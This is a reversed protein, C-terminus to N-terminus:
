AFRGHCYNGERKSPDFFANETVGVQIREPFLTCIYNYVETYCTNNDHFLGKRNFSTSNLAVAVLFFDGTDSITVFSQFGANYLGKGIMEAVIEVATLGIEYEVYLEFYHTKIANVKCYTRRVSEFSHVIMKPSNGCVGFGRKYICNEDDYMNEILNKTYDENQRGARPVNFVVM